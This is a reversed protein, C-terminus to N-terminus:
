HGGIIPLFPQWSDADLDDGGGGDDLRALSADIAREDSDSGCRVVRQLEEPLAGLLLPLDLDGTGPPLGVALGRADDLYAGPASGLADFLEVANVFGLRELRAGHGIDLWPALPAGRYEDVLSLTEEPSPVAEASGAHRLAITVGASQAVDLLGDLSRRLADLHREAAGARLGRIADRGAAREDASSREGGALDELERTSEALGRAAVRGGDIVVFSAESREAWELSRLTCEEAVRRENEDLAVLQPREGPPAESRSPGPCSHHVSVIARGAGRLEKVVDGLERTPLPASLEYARVDFRLLRQARDDDPDAERPLFSTSLAIPNM